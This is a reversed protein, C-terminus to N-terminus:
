DHNGMIFNRRRFLADLLFRGLLFRGLFVTRLFVAPFLFGALMGALVGAYLDLSVRDYDIRMGRREVTRFRGAVEVHLIHLTAFVFGSRRIAVFGLWGLFRM